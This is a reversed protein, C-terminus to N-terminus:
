LAGPGLGPADVLEAVYRQGFYLGAGALVLVGTAAVVSFLFVRQKAERSLGRFGSQVLRMADKGLVVREGRQVLLLDIEHNLEAVVEKMSPFGQEGSMSLVGMVVAQLEKTASLKPYRSQLPPPQATVHKFMLSTPTAGDFTVQGTLM